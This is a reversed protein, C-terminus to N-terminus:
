DDAERGTSPRALPTSALPTLSAVNGAQIQTIRKGLVIMAQALMAEADHLEGMPTGTGVVIQNAQSALQAAKIVKHRAVALKASMTGPGIPTPQSPNAM